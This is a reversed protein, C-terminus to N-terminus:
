RRAGDERLDVLNIPGAALAAATQAPTGPGVIINRVGIRELHRLFAAPDEALLLDLTRVHAM